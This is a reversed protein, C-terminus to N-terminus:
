ELPPWANEVLMQFQAAFWRGAHPAGDLANTPYAPNYTSQALPDCMPDHRKAPDDPDPTFDPDSIGDSEGPPKVWVYADVGPAPNAVPREGIGAGVQNCWGGRHPRRDIRSQDVYANITTATSVATPRDPGGWGNRGTDILMGLDTSFGNAIFADRLATVFSLEGFYPNWEYFDASRVPLNQGPIVLTDDPLFPEEVPTVGSTNSVFGDVSNLGGTTGAIADTYLDVTPGFNSDWGLWGSHGIDLYTYVNDIEYFRDVAYQIGQVYAGSSNAEACDPKNLNTILNPLSDPELVTVIRLDQYKPQVFVNYIPDIYETKYRELGNESIRLEGNSAEAACDRNPLDYVVILVYVPTNGVQQTLALDLHQELSLRTPSGYIAGIRDMWVASPIEAVMQMQSALPESVTAAQANVLAAYDPNVYGVAGVFPNQVHEGPLPTPPPTTPTPSPGVTPEVTPEVTPDVTPEPTPNGGGNVACASGNLTFAAPVQVDGNHTGQMGFAATGGNAAITGNWHSAVNSATVTQGSAAFTANWGSGFQEDGIFTWVLDWGSVATGSNNTITVDAQFGSNWQNTIAYTVACSSAPVTPPVSTATPPVSTVTPPMNTATPSVSTATATPPITTATPPVSTATPPVATATPPVTTPPPTDDNCSVGNLVFDTPVIASGNGQLGFSVSGGNAGITGNWHGAPNSASVDNGTQTVTANWASAVSQGPAHSFNLTWGSVATNKNNTITINAQFGSNWQNVIDYDVQCAGGGSPSTATAPVIPTNTPPVSTPPPNGNAIEYINPFNGTMLLMSFLRWANGYYSNPTDKTNLVRDYASQPSEQLSGTGTGCSTAIPNPAAWVAAGANAVFFPWPGSGTKQGDMGHEGINNFGTSSFFGGIENMTETAEARGYWAQDVAIRWAFRAADYSWWSYNQPQWSVLQADGNYNNWNPVLGSCNNPKAQVMDTMAYNRDIVANWAAENNTFKGFVTFYGPPFYSLNIIGDPYDSSLDWTDGPILENGQNNPLGAPPASGPHDVEYDYIANILNTAEICYDIGQSSAPWAGEQVKVCANVLGLAMDVEADTAGGTGLLQGPNGIHWDMVGNDNFHDKAFLYLGDLLDQEDFISAFLIGYAQGESVTETSGVGGLVRYRGNGGANNSTIQADRWDTWAQYVDAENFNINTTHNYPWLLPNQPSASTQSTAGVIFLLMLLISAGFILGKKIMSQRKNM